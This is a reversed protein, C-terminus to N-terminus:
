FEGIVPDFAEPTDILLIHKQNIYVNAAEFFAFLGRKIVFIRFIDLSEFYENTDQAAINVLNQSLLLAPDKKSAKFNVRQITLNGSAKFIVLLHKFIKLYINTEFKYWVLMSTKNRVLKGQRIRQFNPM